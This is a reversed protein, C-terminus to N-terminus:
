TRRSAAVVGRRSAAVVGRDDCPATAFLPERSAIPHIREAPKEGLGRATGDIGGIGNRRFWLHGIFEDLAAHEDPPIGERADSQDATGSQRQAVEVASDSM